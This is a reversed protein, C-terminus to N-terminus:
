AEGKAAAIAKCGVCACDGRHGDTLPYLAALLEPALAMLRANAELTAQGIWVNKAKFPFSWIGWTEPSIEECTWPGPTHETSM